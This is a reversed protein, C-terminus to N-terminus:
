YDWLVYFIDVGVCYSHLESKDWLVYSWSSAANTACFDQGLTCDTCLVSCRMKWDSSHAAAGLGPSLDCLTEFTKGASHWEHAQIALINKFSIKLLQYPSHGSSWFLSFLLTEETHVFNFTFSEKHSQQLKFVCEEPPLNLLSVTTASLGLSM